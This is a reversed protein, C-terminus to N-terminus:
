RAVAVRVVANQGDNAVIRLLYVGAPLASVNISACGKSEAVVVGATNVLQLSAIGSVAGEVNILHTAPVPYVSLRDGPNGVVDDIGANGGSRYLLDDVVISGKKTLPSEVQTVKFKDFKYSMGDTLGDIKTECYEWGRFTLDCLKFWKTDPGASVGAYLEHNSFDGNVYLGLVDGNNIPTITDNQTTYNWIAEGGHSEVFGYSLKVGKEGFLKITTSGAVSPKSVVGKSDEANGTIVAQDDFSELVPTEERSTVDKATVTFVLDEVMPLNDIDVLEKSLTFTYKEGVTLNDALALVANGVDDGLKNYSCGRVNLGITNNKTDSVTLLNAMGASKIKADFRVEVTPKEYHIEGGDVPYQDIVEVNSRSRTKFTMTVPNQLNSQSYITDPTCLEQGIKLTYTTNPTLITNYVFEAKHNNKSFKWYGDIAPEISFAKEFSETLIDSNFEVIIPEACKVLGDEGVKPGVITAELPFERKMHLSTSCYTVDNATVTVKRERTYYRDETFRITYDGPAVNRFVFVGNFWKDTTRTQVVKGDKDILEIYCGNVTALKDIGYSTFNYYPNSMSIEMERLNHDDYVIGAVNGTVFRDETDFYEMISKVFLWAELWWYDDNQRRYAEPRHEHMAGESLVGVTYLNRLIGYGTYYMGFTLDGCVQPKHTYNSIERSQFNKAIIESLIPNGEYRPGSITGDAARDERYLMLPYNVNEGANSHISFFLDAGWNSAEQGIGSLSRDDDETNKVRSMKATVGLSDLIHYMHLGIYLNSKSEWFSTSDLTECPYLLMGRDDGSYGGHGPNIYIKYDSIKAAWGASLCGILALVILIRKM